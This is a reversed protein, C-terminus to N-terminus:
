LFAKLDFFPAYNGNLAKLSGFCGKGSCFYLLLLMRNASQVLCFLACCHQQWKAKTDADVKVRTPIGGVSICLQCHHTRWHHCFLPGGSMKPLICFCRVSIFVLIPTSVVSEVRSSESDFSFWICINLKLCLSRACIPLLCVSRRNIQAVSALLQLPWLLTKNHRHMIPQILSRIFSPVFLSSRVLKTHLLLDFKLKILHSQIWSCHLLRLDITVGTTRQSAPPDAM